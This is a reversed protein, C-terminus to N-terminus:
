REGGLRYRGFLHRTYSEPRRFLVLANGEIGGVLEDGPQLDLQERLGKPIVVQFKSSVKLSTLGKGERQMYSTYSSQRVKQLVYSLILKEARRHRQRDGLWPMTDVPSEPGGVRSSWRYRLRSRARRWFGELARM